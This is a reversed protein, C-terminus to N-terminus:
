DSKPYQPYHVMGFDHWMEQYAGNGIQVATHAAFEGHLAVEM